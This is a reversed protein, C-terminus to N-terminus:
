AHSQNFRGKKFQPEDDVGQYAALHQFLLLM